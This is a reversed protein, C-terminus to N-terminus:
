SSTYLCNAKNAVPSEWNSTEWYSIIVIWFWVMAWWFKRQLLIIMSAFTMLLLASNQDRLLILGILRLVSEWGSPFIEGPLFNCGKSIGHINRGHGAFTNFCPILDARGGESSSPNQILSPKAASSPVCFSCLLTEPFMEDRSKCGYARNGSTNNAKEMCFWVLAMAM